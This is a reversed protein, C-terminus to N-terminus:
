ADLMPLMRETLPYKLPRGQLYNDIDDTLMALMRLVSEMVGGARHPTLYANPLKRLPHKTPLPEADFVDIAAFLDGKRLRAVLATTDVLAARATNVLVANKPLADLQKAGLLHASDPNNSACLVLVDSTRCLADLDVRKAGLSSAAADTIYPDFTTLDVHFPALLEALRRGIQGFGVIGVRRGALQRELPDIDDPFSKVWAERGQRMQAHYDSTRRLTSLILTLAMEAVAPSWAPRGVSVPLRRSLCVKAASQTIDLKAAFRLRECPALLEDTFRPWSWMLVLEAWALDRAIEDPRNHSRKRLTGLSALRKFAPKLQPHAFFGPPLNILLSPKSV